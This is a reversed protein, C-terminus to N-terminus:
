QLVNNLAKTYLNLDGKNMVALMDAKEKLYISAFSPDYKIISKTNDILDCYKISQSNPSITALRDVEMSKRRRRSFEPYDALVFRDTLEWTGNVIFDIEKNNYRFELLAARLLEETCETDEFLDHCLGIEYGSDLKNKEACEAVAILHASYPEGTYKRKQKRHQIAVFILLNIQRESRM